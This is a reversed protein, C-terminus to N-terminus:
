FSCLLKTKNNNKTPNPEGGVGLEGGSLQEVSHFINCLLPIKLNFGEEATSNERKEEGGGPFTFSVELPIHPFPPHCCVYLTLNPQKLAIAIYNSCIVYFHNIKNAELYHIYLNTLPKCTM